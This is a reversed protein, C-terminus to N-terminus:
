PSTVKTQAPTSTVPESLPTQPNRQTPNKQSNTAPSVQKRNSTCLIHWGYVSFESDSLGFKLETEFRAPITTKYKAAYNNFLIMQSQNLDKYIVALKQGESTPLIGDLPQMCKNKQRNRQPDLLQERFDKSRGAIIFYRYIRQGKVIGGLCELRLLDNIIRQKNVQTSNIWKLEIATTLRQTDRSLLCFDIQRPRGQRGEENLCPHDYETQLHSSAAANLLYEGTPQNLYSESLLQERGCLHQFSLWHFIAKGLSTFKDPKM